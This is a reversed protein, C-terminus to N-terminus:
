SRRAARHAQQLFDSLALAALTSCAVRTPRPAALLSATLAAAVWMGTCAPCLVLQGLAARMGEGRPSERPDTVGDMGEFRVFPARVFGAVADRTLLRSLKFTAVGLLAVDAAGVREPLARRRAAVGLPLGFVASFGGAIVAYARLPRERAAAVDSPAAGTRM